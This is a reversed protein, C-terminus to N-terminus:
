AGLQDVERRAALEANVAQNIERAKELHTTLGDAVDAGAHLRLLDLRIAELAAVTHELRERVRDRTDTLDTTAGSPELARHALTRSLAGERNRLAAADAELRQIAAPVDPFRRRVHSPLQDYIGDVASALLAETHRAEVTPPSPREIGWSALRFLLRGFRGVLLRQGMPLSALASEEAVPPGAGVLVLGVMFLLVSLMGGLDLRGLAALLPLSGVGLAILLPGRRIWRERKERATRMRAWGELELEEALTEAEDALAARIEGLDIGRRIARRTMRVLRVPYSLLLAAGMLLPAGLEQGILRLQDVDIILVSWGALSAAGGLVISTEGLHRLLRRTEPPVERRAPTSANVAEALAEATSFRAVPLRALCRDVAEALRPPVRPAMRAVPPPRGTAHQQIVAPLNRGDFPLRGTLAQYATVGLSYLDSRGDVPRGTAQEPSMYHVTGVIESRGTPAAGHAVRAIGFDTVIVRESDKEILINDPKIDRHVVGRQHAYALAWAVEQVMRGVAAPALAGRRRIRQGLSEGDVLAMVFYVLDDREEVLHIPVINPHTLGAATRAERLFRARLDPSIALAPPLLKIAVPRDLAVDRALFV